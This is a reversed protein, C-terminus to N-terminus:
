NWVPQGGGPLDIISLRRMGLTARQAVLLGEADPGRHVMAANMRRVLNQSDNKNEFGIVGCIGCM